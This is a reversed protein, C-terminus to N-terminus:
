TPEGHLCLFVQNADHPGADVYHMRLGECGKLNDIYNPDYPFDPLDIFRDVPTRLVEIM